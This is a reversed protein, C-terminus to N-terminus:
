RETSFEHRYKVLGSVGRMRGEDLILVMFVDDPLNWELSMGYFGAREFGFRSYFQPDGVVIIFPCQEDRLRTNGAQILQSGVGKRQHEPLVAIPGLAAGRLNDISAPSYTIHGVMHEDGTAVLSHLFGGNARLADVIDAEQDQGFARENVERIAAIESDTPDEERVRVFLSNM